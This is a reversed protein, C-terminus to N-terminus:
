GAPPPAAPDAPTEASEAPVAAPQESGDQAHDLVTIEAQALAPQVAITLLLVALWCRLNFLMFLVM